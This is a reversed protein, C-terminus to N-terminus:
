SRDPSDPVYSHEGSLYNAMVECASRYMRVEAPSLESPNRYGFIMVYNNAIIVQPPLQFFPHPQFDPPNNM